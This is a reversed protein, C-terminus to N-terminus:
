FKNSVLIQEFVVIPLGILGKAIIYKTNLCISERSICQKSMILISLLIWKQHIDRVFNLLYM